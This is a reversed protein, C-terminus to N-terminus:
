NAQPHMEADSSEEESVDIWSARQRFFGLLRSRDALFLSASYAGLTLILGLALTLLSPKMLEELWLGVAATCCMAIFPGRLVDGLGIDLKAKAWAIMAFSISTVSITVGAAAGAIGFPVILLVCVAPLIVCTMFTLTLLVRNCSNVLFIPEYYTLTGRWAAAIILCKLPVVSAAWQKGLVTLVLPEGCGVVFGAVFFYIVANLWTLKRFASELGTATQRALIPYSVQNLGIKLQLVYQSLQFAMYYFGLARPGLMRDLILYDIHGYLQVLFAAGTLPWGFKWIARATGQDLAFRPRNPLYAWFMIGEIGQAAVRGWVLAWFGNGRWALVVSLLAGIVTGVLTPLYFRRFHLDRQLLGSTALMPALLLISAYVRYGTLLDPRGFWEMMPRSTIMALGFAILGLSAEVTFAVDYQKRTLISERVIFQRASITAVAALGTVLTMILAFSGFQEPALLRALVLQATFTSAYRGVMVLGLFLVGSRWADTLGSKDSM